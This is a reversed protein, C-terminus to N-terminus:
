LNQLKDLSKKNDSNSNEDKIWEHMSFEDYGVEIKQKNLHDIKFLQNEDLRRHLKYDVGWEKTGSEAFSYPTIKIIGNEYEGYMFVLKSYGDIKGGGCTLQHIDNRANDFRSYGLLHSHGCLYLDVRDDFLISLDDYENPDFFDKGHHGLVITPKTKDVGSFLDLLKPDTIILKGTDDEDCSTICTNLILLNFDKLTPICKILWFL